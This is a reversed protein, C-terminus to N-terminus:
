FLPHRAAYSPQNYPPLSLNLILYLYHQILWPIHTTYLQASLHFSVTCAFMVTLDIVFLVPEVAIVVSCYYSLAFSSGAPVGTVLSGNTPPVFQRVLSLTGGLSISAYHRLTSPKIFSSRSKIMSTSSAMMSIAVQDYHAVLLLSVYRSEGNLKQRVRSYVALAQRLRQEHKAQDEDEDVINEALYDM